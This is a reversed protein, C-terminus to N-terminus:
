CPPEDRPPSTTLISIERSCQARSSPPRSSPPRSLVPPATEITWTTIPQYIGHRLQLWAITDITWAPHAAIAADLDRAAARLEDRHADDPYRVCTIHWTFTPDGPLTLHTGDYLRDRAADLEDSQEVAVFFTGDRNTFEHIGGLRVFIPQAFAHLIQAELAAADRTDPAGYCLTAHPPLRRAQVPDHRQRWAQIADGAPGTAIAVLVRRGTPSDTPDTATAAGTIDSAGAVTPIETVDSAGPTDLTSFSNTM